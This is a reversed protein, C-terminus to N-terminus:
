GVCDSWASDDATPGLDRCLVITYLGNQLKVVYKSSVRQEAKENYFELGIVYYTYLGLGVDEIENIVM